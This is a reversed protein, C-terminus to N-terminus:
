FGLAALDLLIAHGDKRLIKDNHILKVLLTKFEKILEKSNNGALIQGKLITFRNFEAEDKSKNPRPLADIGEAKSMKFVKYLIDKDIDDMETLESHSPFGYGNVIKNLMKGLKPSVSMQPLEAIQGGKVTRMLLVNDRLKHKNVVYKGIPMYSPEKKIGRELDINDPRVMMTPKMARALGCGFAIRKGKKLGNGGMGLKMRMDKYIEILAAEENPDNRNMISKYEKFQDPSTNDVIIGKKEMDELISRKDAYDQLDFDKVGMAPDYSVQVFPSATAAAKKTYAKRPKPAPSPALNGARYDEVIQLLENKPLKALGKVSPMAGERVKYGVWWKLSTLSVKSVENIPNTEIFNLDYAQQPTMKPGVAKVAPPEIEEPEPLKAFATRTISEKRSQQVAKAQEEQGIAEFAAAKEEAIARAQELQAKDDRTLLIDNIITTLIDPVQAPRAQQLRQTLLQLDSGSAVSSLGDNIAREAAARDIPNMKDLAAIMSETPLLSGLTGIASLASSVMRPPASGGINNITFTLDNLQAANPMLRMLDRMSLLLEETTHGTSIGKQVSVSNIYDRKYRQLVENFLPALIGSAFKQKIMKSFDDWAVGLFVVDQDSITNMIKSAEAGDTISPLAQRLVKRQADVDLLRESLTRTDTPQVPAVGTTQLTSVAAETKALNDIQMQLNSIYENYVKRRDQPQRINYPNM